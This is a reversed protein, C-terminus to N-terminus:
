AADAERMFGDDLAEDLLSRWGSLFREEASEASFRAMDRLDTLDTSAIARIADAWAAAGDEVVVGGDAAQEPLGDIAATLIPRAAARAELGVLGFPEWRSPVAVVDCKAYALAPTDTRGELSVHPLDAIKAGLAEQEPGAGWISLSAINPGLTKMADILVDFGKQRDLRGIACISLRGEGRAKPALALFPSIDVCSRITRIKSQPAAGFEGLWRAQGDSVAVVRDFLAYSASLLARFRGQRSVNCDVFGGSYSHEVHVLPKRAYSARLAVLLPFNRWCISLHSVVADAEEAPPRWQGKKLVLIRHTALSGLGPDNRLYDLVRQVGGPKEDDVLHLITKM